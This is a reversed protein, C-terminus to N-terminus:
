GSPTAQRTLNGTKLDGAGDDVSGPVKRMPGDETAKTV